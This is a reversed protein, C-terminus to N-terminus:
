VRKHEIGPFGLRASAGWGVMIRLVMERFGQYLYLRHLSRLNVTEVFKYTDHNVHFPIVGLTNTKLHSEFFM